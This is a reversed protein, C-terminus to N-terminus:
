GKNRLFVGGAKDNALKFGTGNNQPLHICSVGAELVLVMNQKEILILIMKLEM